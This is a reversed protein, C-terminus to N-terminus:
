YGKCCIFFYKSKFKTHVVISFMNLIGIRVLIEPNIPNFAYISVPKRFKNKDNMLFRNIFDLSSFCFGILRELGELRLEYKNKKTM